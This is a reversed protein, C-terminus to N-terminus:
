FLYMSFADNQDFFLQNEFFNFSFYIFVNIHSFIYFYKKRAGGWTLPSKGIPFPPFNFFQFNYFNFFQLLPVNSCRVDSFTFKGIMGNKLKENERNKFKKLKEMKWKGGPGCGM